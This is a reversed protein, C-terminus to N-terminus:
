RDVVDLAEFRKEILEVGGFNVQFDGGGFLGVLAAVVM